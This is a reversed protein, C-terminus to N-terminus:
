EATKSARDFLFALTKETQIHSAIRDLATKRLKKRVAPVAEREQRAIREVERDVEENTACSPNRRRWRRWIDTVGASRAAAQDRQAEKIKAWDLNFSSPDVGQQALSGCGSSARSKRDAQEVFVEPVAFENRM